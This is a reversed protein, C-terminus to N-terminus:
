TKMKRRSPWIRSIRGVRAFSTLENCGEGRTPCQVFGATKLTWYDIDLTWYGVRTSIKCFIGNEKASILELIRGVRALIFYIWEL